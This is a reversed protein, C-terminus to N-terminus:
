GLMTPTNAQYSLMVAYAALTVILGVTVLMGGARFPNPAKREMGFAHIIRALVFAIGVWLLWDRTGGVIEVLALLILFLPATETFNAHARMRTRMVLNDGDGISVGYRFRGRVCRVFHWVYLVAIAAAITLTIPLHM